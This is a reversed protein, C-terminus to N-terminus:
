CIQFYIHEHFQFFSKRIPYMTYLNSCNQFLILDLVMMTKNYYHILPNNIGTRCVYFSKNLGDMWKNILAATIQHNQYQPHTELYCQLWERKFKEDGITDMGIALYFYLFLVIYAESFLKKCKYWTIYSLICRVKHM